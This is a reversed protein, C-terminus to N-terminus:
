YKLFNFPLLIIEAYEEGAEFIEEDDYPYHWNILVNSGNEKADILKKLLILIMKSSSTNFYELKINLETDHNPDLIYNDFWELIPKYFEKVDEPLSKGEFNFVGNEKDLIVKPTEITEEIFLNEM